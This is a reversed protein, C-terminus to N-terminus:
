GGVAIDFIPRMTAATALAAHVRHALFNRWLAEDEGRGEAWLPEAQQTLLYDYRPAWKRAGLRDTISCNDVMYSVGRYHMFPNLSDVAEIVSENVIESYAHGREALLDIQAMMSGIYVGATFPDLPIASDKRSARVKEGVKWMFTGDIKGMPIKKMREGSLIVSRIENGSAVEDYIECHIEYSPAYAAGYARRFIKRDGEPLSEYVGILGKRSITRSIPGTVSETSHVFAEEPTMGAAQYHRFLFEVIGHVGGLLIAREGFIDSKYEQELTTMFTFPAGLAVSWALAYDTARGDVDQEVAFSNNIGAGNVSKGQEYLRRVSPGMGKPCVGIVNINSPFRDGNIKLVGLLFGHSLGLTAGPKLARFIAPYLEAQAADSILLLVMDSERAVAMMEGLTGNDERFDAAQAAKWSPSSPRLGVKVKVRTGELSDRLNQAQAPGQSGWGLVGIQRIGGFAEPLLPFLNRGGRVVLEEEPGLLVKESTFVTSKFSNRVRARRNKDKRHSYWVQIGLTFGRNVIKEFIDAIPYQCLAGVQITSKAIITGMDCTTTRIIEETM